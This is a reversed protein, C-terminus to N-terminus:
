SEKKQTTPQQHITQQQQQKFDWGEGGNIKEYFIMAYLNSYVYFLEAFRKCSWCNTNDM